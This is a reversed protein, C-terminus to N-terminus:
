EVQTLPVMAVSFEADAAPLPFVDTRVSETEAAAAM